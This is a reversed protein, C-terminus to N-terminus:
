VHRSPMEEGGGLAPEKASLSTGLGCRAFVPFLQVEIFHRKKLTILCICKKIRSFTQATGMALWGEGM